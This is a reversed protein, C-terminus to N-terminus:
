KLSEIEINLVSFSVEEIGDTYDRFYGYLVTTTDNTDGIYILPTARFSNLLNLVANRQSKEVWVTATMTRSYSGEEITSNGFEDKEKTSYDLIGLGLGAQTYGVTRSLGVVCLGCKIVEGINSLSISITAGAYPPMDVVLTQDMYVIPEFTYMYPDIVGSDAILPIIKDYVVGELPDIMTIRAFDAGEINQLVVSDALADDPIKIATAIFDNAVTQSEVSQDFMAWRNTPGADLWLSLNTLPPKNLNELTRWTATGNGTASIAAGGSTASLTFANTNVVAQVYYTTNAAFPSPPTLLRIEQGVVLGHNASAFNTSGNAITYPGERGVASEYIRHVGGTNIMVQEGMIYAKTTDHLPADAESLLSLMTMTNVQGDETVLVPPKSLDAPDFTFRPVNIAATQLVGNKDYYTGTSPRVFSGTDPVALPRIIKM